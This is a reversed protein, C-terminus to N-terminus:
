FLNIQLPEACHDTSTEYKTPLETYMIYINGFFNTLNPRSIQSGLMEVKVLAVTM